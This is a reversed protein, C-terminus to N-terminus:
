IEVKLYSELKELNKHEIQERHNTILQQFFSLFDEDTLILYIQNNTVAADVIENLQECSYDSSDFQRIKHLATRSAAFSTSSIFSSIAGIKDEEERIKIQPLAVHFFQSLSTHFVIESQKKDKWEKALYPSFLEKNLPNNWDGDESVLHLPCNNPARKLLMEWNIADGLSHKKGPPKGLEHRRKAAVFIGDDLKYLKAYDFLDEVLLDAQLKENNIDSNIKSMLASKEISYSDILAQLKAFEPYEKCIMPFTKPLSKEDISRISEYLKNERNRRFEDIVQCTLLLNVKSTVILDVLERLKTLDTKSFAYFSLLVNTDIFVQITM